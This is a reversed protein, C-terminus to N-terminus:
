PSIQAIRIIRFLPRDKPEYFKVLFGYFSQAVIQILHFEGHGVALSAIIIDIAAMGGENKGFFIAAWVASIIVLVVDYCISISGLILYSRTQFAKRGEMRTQFACIGVLAWSVHCIGM